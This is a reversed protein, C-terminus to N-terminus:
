EPPWRYAGSHGACRVVSNQFAAAALLSASLAAPQSGALAPAQHHALAASHMYLHAHMHRHSHTHTASSLLRSGDPLTSRPAWTTAPPKTKPRWTDPLSFAITFSLELHSPALEGARRGLWGGCRARRGDGGEAAGAGDDEVWNLMQELCPRAAPMPKPSGCLPGEASVLFLSRKPPPPPKGMRSFCPTVESGWSGVVRGPSEEYVAKFMTAPAKRWPHCGPWKGRPRAEGEELGLLREQGSTRPMKPKSNSGLRCSYKHSWAEHKVNNFIVM